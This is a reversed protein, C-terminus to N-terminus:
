GPPPFNAKEAMAPLKSYIFNDVARAADLQTKYYGIYKMKGNGGFKKGQCVQAKWHTTQFRSVGYYISTEERKESPELPPLRYDWRRGFRRRPGVFRPRRPPYGAPHNAKSALLPLHEHIYRRASPPDRAGAAASRLPAAAVWLRSRRAM